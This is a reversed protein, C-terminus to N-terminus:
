KSGLSLYKGDHSFKMESIEFISKLESAPIGTGVEYM